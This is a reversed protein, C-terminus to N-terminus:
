LTMDQIASKQQHSNGQVPFLVSVGDVQLTYIIFTLQSFSPPQIQDIFTYASCSKQLMEKSKSFLAKFRHYISYIGFIYKYSDFHPQTKKNTQKPTKKKETKGLSSIEQKPFCIYGAQMSGTHSPHIFSCLFLWFTTFVWNYLHQASSRKSLSRNKLCYSKEKINWYCLCEGHITEM